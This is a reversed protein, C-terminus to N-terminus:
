STVANVQIWLEAVRDNELRFAFMAETNVTAGAPINVRPNSVKSIVTAKYSMVFVNGDGTIYKREQKITTNSERNKIIHQKYTEFGTFSPGSLLHFKLDPSVLQELADFKGELNALEDAKMWKEAFKKIDM